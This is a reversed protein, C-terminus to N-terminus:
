QVVLSVGLQKKVSFFFTKLKFSWCCPVTTGQTGVEATLTCHDRPVAEATLAPPTGSRCNCPIVEKESGVSWPCLIVQPLDGADGVGHHLLKPHCGADPGDGEGLGLLAHRADSPTWEALAELLHHVM